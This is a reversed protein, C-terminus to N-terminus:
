LINISNIINDKLNVILRECVTRVKPSMVANGTFKRCKGASLKLRKFGYAKCLIVIKWLNIHLNLVRKALSIGAQLNFINLTRYWRNIHTNAKIVASHSCDIEKCVKCIIKHKFHSLRHMSKIATLYFFDSYLSEALREGELGKVTNFSINIFISKHNTVVVGRNGNCANHTAKVAFNNIICSRKSKFRCGKVRSWDTLWCNAKRVSCVSRHSILLTEVRFHCYCSDCSKYIKKLLIICIWCNNRSKGIIVSIM